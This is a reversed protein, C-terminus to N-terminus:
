EPSVPAPADASTPYSAPRPCQHQPSQQTFVDILTHMYPITHSEFTATGMEIHSGHSLSRRYRIYANESNM